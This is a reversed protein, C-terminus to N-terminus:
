KCDPAAPPPVYGDNKIKSVAAGKARGKAKPEAQTALRGQVSCGSPADRRLM